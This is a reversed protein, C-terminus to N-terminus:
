DEPKHFITKNPNDTCTDIKECYKYENLFYINFWHKTRCPSKDYHCKKRKKKIDAICKSAFDVALFDQAKGQDGYYSKKQIKNKNIKYNM